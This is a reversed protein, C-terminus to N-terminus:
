SAGGPRTTADRVAARRSPASPSAGFSSGRGSVLSGVREQRVTDVVGAYQRDRIARMAEKKSEGRLRDVYLKGDLHDTEHQLCRALLGSGEVTVPDGTVTYGTVRAHDARPTHHGMGPVSLCGESGDQPQDGVTLEPNVVHGEHGDIHYVFVRLSVGIQPAALGVGSVDHMTQIMDEVLTALDHRDETDFTTVPAAVSRLVPDGITRIPRVAM